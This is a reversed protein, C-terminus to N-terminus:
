QNQGHHNRPPQIRLLQPVTTSKVPGLAVFPVCGRPSSQILAIDYQPVKALHLLKAANAITPRFCAAQLTDELQQTIKSIPGLPEAHTANLQYRIAHKMDVTVCAALVNSHGKIFIYLTTLSVGFGSAAKLAPMRWVWSRQDEVSYDTTLLTGLSERASQYSATDQRWMTQRQTEIYFRPGDPPYYILNDPGLRAVGYGVEYARRELSKYTRDEPDVGLADRIDKQYNPWRMRLAASQAKTPIPMAGTGVIM